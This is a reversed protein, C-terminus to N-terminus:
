RSESPGVAVIMEVEVPTNRPLEGVGVASRAHRGVEGFISQLLDSAGDLVKPQGTFGPASNVFGTVKLVRTVRDLNGVAEELAALGYLVCLRASEQAQEITVEAGVKGPHLVGEGQRPLQGSIYAVGDNVAVPLYNFAPRPAPPLQIDLSQLRERISM